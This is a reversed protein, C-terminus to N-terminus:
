SWFFSYAAYDATQLRKYYLFLSLFIVLVKFIIFNKDKKFIGFSNSLCIYAAQTYYWALRELAMNYFRLLYLGLGVAIIPSLVKPLDNDEEHKDLLIQSFLSFSYLIIPVIGNLSYTATDSAVLEGQSFFKGLGIIQPALIMMAIVVFVLSWKRKQIFKSNVVFYSVIFVLASSHFTSALLVVVIFWFWKKKKILEVSLLCVCIAIAQRFGTLMFSMSGLTVYFFFPWFVNESNHYIFYCVSFVCFGAEFLVIAQKFPLIMYLLKNLIVYGIEFETNLIAQSWPTKGIVEYFETYVKLDYVNEYNGGRLGIVLFTVIGVVWLFQRKKYPTDISVMLARVVVIFLALSIWVLM